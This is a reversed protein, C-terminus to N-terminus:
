HRHPRLIVGPLDKFTSEASVVERQTAHATAAIILDFGSLSDQWIKVFEQCLPRAM